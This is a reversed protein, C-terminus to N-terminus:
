RAKDKRAYRRLLAGFRDSFARESCREEMFRRAAAGLRACTEPEDILQRIAAALANRDGCPVTLCTEGPVIYDRMAETESVVLARGMAGAELITSVGSANLTEGVLPVVVFRSQAYLDRFAPYDIRERMIKVNPPVAAGPAIRKTKLVFEAPLGAAVDLLSDFDRGIDEGVSLIFGDPSAPVPTYFATDTRHGIMEVGETRGWRSAIYAKQNTSLVFLGAVRPIVRNLVFERLKWTDSLAVDWIVVPVRFFFLARLLELPLAGGEFVVIAIDAERWATLVHLARLPDLTQLLPHKGGFPNLPRKGPDLLILDIGQAALQRDLEMPDPGSGNRWRDREPKWPFPPMLLARLRRGNSRERDLPMPTQEMENPMKSKVATRESM